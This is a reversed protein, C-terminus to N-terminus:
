ALHVSVRGIEVPAEEHRAREALDEEAADGVLMPQVPRFTVHVADDDWVGREALSAALDTIDMAFRLGSTHGDAARAVREIGFFSVNGAHHAPLDEESADEPLNVYVAYVTSPNKEGVIDEVTLILRAPGAAEDEAFSRRATEAARRDVAVPVREVDGRLRLPRDSEDASKEVDTLESRWKTNGL